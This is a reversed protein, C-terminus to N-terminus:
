LGTVWEVTLTRSDSILQDPVESRPRWGEYPDEAIM